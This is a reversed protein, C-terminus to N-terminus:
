ENPFWLLAQWKAYLAGTSRVDRMCYEAIERHRGEAFVENINRGTVGEGKPSPIGFSKCYFDLNFRRTAGNNGYALFTLEDMLDIHSRRAAFKGGAMLNRSPRIGLVASRLMLFPCDFGRGNFTIYKEYVMEGARGEKHAGIVAWFRTLLEHEDTVAIYTVGDVAEEEAAGALYIVRGQNSDVNLMGICCVRATLPTLSLNRVAQEKAEPTDTNRMLYEQQVDDFADLPLGLTEIDFLLKAM